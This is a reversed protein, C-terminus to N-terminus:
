RGVRGRLRRMYSRVTERSLGLTRAAHRVSHGEEFVAVYARLEGKPIGERFSGDELRVYAILLDADQRAEKSPMRWAWNKFREVHQAFTQPSPGYEVVTGDPRRELWPPAYLTAAANVKGGRKM